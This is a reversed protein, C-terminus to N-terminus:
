SKAMSSPMSTRNKGRAVDSGLGTGYSGFNCFASDCPSSGWAKVGRMDAPQSRISAFAMKVGSPTGLTVRVSAAISRGAGPM